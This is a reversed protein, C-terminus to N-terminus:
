NNIFIIKSKEKEIADRRVQFTAEMRPWAYKMLVFVVIAFTLVGIILEGLNPIVPNPGSEEVPVQEAALYFPLM